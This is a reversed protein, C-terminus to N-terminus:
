VEQLIEGARCPFVCENNRLFIAVEKSKFGKGHIESPPITTLDETNVISLDGTWSGGANLAYGM